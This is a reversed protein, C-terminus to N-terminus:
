GPNPTVSLLEVDFILTAGGAIDPPAGRDGYALESPCVLRAKGGVRMKQLGETFCRVVGNLPFSSPEGRKYSSDFEKGNPLSGRYHVTVIDTAQPQEGTGAQTEKYVLGSETRQAGAEKAAQELFAKGKEKEAAAQASQRSSHLTQIKPGYEELAVAPKEGKLQADIGAKMFELEGPSLNFGGVSRGISLGLAYLTKQEETQPQTALPPPPAKATSTTTACASAFLWLLPLASRVNM